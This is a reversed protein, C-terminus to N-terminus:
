LDLDVLAGNFLEPQSERLLLEDDDEDASRPEACKRQWNFDERDTEERTRRKVRALVMDLELFNNDDAAFKRHKRGTIHKNFDDFKTRCSECYGPKSGEERKPLRMTNTSRSKKLMPQRSPFATPPGMDGGTPRAVASKRSTLVQPRSRLALPLSNIIPIGTTSTTGTTSTIGVSNGSAAVNGGPHASDGFDADLDVLQQEELARRHMNNMSASRRLDGAQNCARWHAEASQKMMRKMKEKHVAERQDVDEKDRQSKEWRRKEKDDFPLFPGRSQPHCYLVPWPVKANQSDRGKPIVYEQIAIPALEEKLDEVLMFYTNRNFYKYNHRRQNPDRETTGHLRETQLLRSLSRQPVPVLPPAHQGVVDLCRDLVSNLKALTWIKTNDFSKAKSILDELPAPIDDPTQQQGRLKIPSRLRNRPVDNEKNASPLIDTTTPQDTIFHTITNSFFNEISGGLQRIKAVTQKISSADSLINDADIYFRWNPFAKSYKEKFELRQQEREAHRRAKDKDAEKDRQTTTGKLRKSVNEISHDPSRPRKASLPPHTRRLTAM